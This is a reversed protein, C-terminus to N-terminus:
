QLVRLMATEFRDRDLPDVRNDSPDANWDAVSRIFWEDADAGKWRFLYYEPSSGDKIQVIGDARRPERGPPHITSSVYRAKPVIWVKRAAGMKAGLVVWMVPADYNGLRPESVFEKTAGRSVGLLGLGDDVQQVWGELVDYLKAVAGLWEILSEESRALEARIHGAERKLYETLVGM